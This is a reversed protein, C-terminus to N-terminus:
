RVMVYGGDNKQIVATAYYGVKAGIWRGAKATFAHGMQTFHRGDPSMWFTCVAGKAIQVRLFVQYVPYNPHNQNDPKIEMQAVEVEAAGEDAGLCNQLALVVKGDKYAMGLAAYDAGMVVVGARDGEYSPAFTLQTTFTMEPGVIKELLLNPTNWLNKWGEPHPICNLRLCSAAPYPMAWTASPNAHWQWHMPLAAGGFHPVTALADVGRFPALADVGPSAPADTGLRSDHADAGPASTKGAPMRYASVPEGIGDGDPDAGITCWGDSHWQMPQLHVVRGYAYRDEFHLFWSDGATDEVWGGQHPGHIDTAGQHLVNKWEYPGYVSRSRLVLQWGEKVGGAPAFIYYWGDRKYFKPGEVTPNGTAKGDFVLVNEGRMAFSDPDLECVTLLSKFGARSGAWGHVLYVKGGEDWLPCPDILGKGEIILQPSSWKGRPNDTSVVYIGHDPDGWFIYFKGEHYRISPAWVGNGHAPYSFSAEPQLRPLAAGVIEWHVLDTSHLIQLGPVCQFSSSTMWYDEGVRIVDPDSYDAHLIPNTFTLQGVLLLFLFGLM